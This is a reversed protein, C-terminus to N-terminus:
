RRGRGGGVRCFKAQLILDPTSYYGLFVICTYNLPLIDAEWASCSPEIGKVQEVSIIGYDKSNCPNRSKERRQIFEFNLFFFPTFPPFGM